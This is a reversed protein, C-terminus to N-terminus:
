PEFHRLPPSSKVRFGGHAVVELSVARELGGSCGWDRRSLEPSGWLKAVAGVSSSSSFGWVVLQFGQGQARLGDLKAPAGRQAGRGM